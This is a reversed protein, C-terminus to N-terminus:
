LMREVALAALAAGSEAARREAAEAWLKREETDKSRKAAEVASAASAATKKKSTGAKGHVRVVGGGDIIIDLCPSTLVLGRMGGRGKVLKGYQTQGIRRLPAGGLLSVPM